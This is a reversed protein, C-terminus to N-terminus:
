KIYLVKGKSKSLIEASEYQDIKKLHIVVEEKTIRNDQKLILGTEKLKSLHEALVINLIQVDNESLVNGKSYFLIICQVIFSHLIVWLAHIPINVCMRTWNTHKGEPNIKYICIM